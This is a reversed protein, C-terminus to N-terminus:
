RRQCRPCFFTSRGSQRIRKVPTACRRCAGSERGYVLWEGGSSGNFYRDEINRPDLRRSLGAEISEILVARIASHLRGTKIASVDRARVEPHIRAAFMSEAAYINGLGCVKTQDLLVDKVARASRQFVHKLYERSFADSLPEPALKRLEPTEHVSSTKAINMYGFHRQDQFVLREDDLFRFEAHTFRPNETDRDLLIFRGSMRLHVILTVGGSLSILIHKGRRSIESVSRDALKSSFSEATEAPALLPRYLRASLIKRGKVVDSLSRSVIEVEPLEPM